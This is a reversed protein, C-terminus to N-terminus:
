KLIAVGLTTIRLLAKQELFKTETFGKERLALIFDQLQDQSITLEKCLQESSVWEDPGKKRYTQYLVNLVDTKTIADPKQTPKTSPNASSAAKHLQEILTDCYARRDSGVRQKATILVAELSNRGDQLRSYRTLTTVLAEVFEGVPVGINLQNQLDSDLGASYIFVQQSSSGSLNPLSTLFKTIKQRLEFPLELAKSEM